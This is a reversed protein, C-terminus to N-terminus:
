KITKIKRIFYYYKYGVICLLFIRVLLSDLLIFPIAIMCDAFLLITLKQKITMAKNKVFGELHKKYVNTAKFWIEFKKSGKVFCVSALLLFPTTPLLPLIIGLLGLGMFFFGLFIYLSKILKITM